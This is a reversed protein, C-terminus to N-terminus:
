RMNGIVSEMSKSFKSLSNTILDFAQNRKDMLGQLRVMDMQSQSNVTDIAGKLNQIAADFQAQKGSATPVTVSPGPIRVPEQAKILLARELAAKRNADPEAAIQQRLQEMGAFRQQSLALIADREANKERASRASAQSGADWGPLQIGNADFFEDVTVRQGDSNKFEGYGVAADGEKAPRATRMAALAANAERLWENRKQMDAMQDRIQGDLINGREIQIAMLLEPINMQGGLKNAVAVSSSFTTAGLSTDIGTM